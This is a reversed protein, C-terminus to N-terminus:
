GASPRQGNSWSTLTNRNVVVANIALQPIVPQQSALQLGGAICRRLQILLAGGWYKLQDRSDEWQRHTASMALDIEIRAVHMLRQLPIPSLVLGRLVPGSCCCWVQVVQGYPVATDAKVLVTTTPERRLVAAVRETVADADLAQQAEAWV